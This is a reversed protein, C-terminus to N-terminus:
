FVARNLEKMERSTDRKRREEVRRGQRSQVGFLFDAIARVPTCGPRPTAVEAAVGGGVDSTKCVVGRATAQMDAIVGDDQPLVPANAEVEQRRTAFDAQIGLRTHIEALSHEIVM